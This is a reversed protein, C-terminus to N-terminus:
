RLSLALRLCPYTLIALTLVIWGLFPGIPISLFFCLTFALTSQMMVNGFAGPSQSGPFVDAFIGKNTSEYVGRGLGQLVYLVVLGWGWTSLNVIHLKDAQVIFAITIFFLSGMLVVTAKNPVLTFAKSGLAAVLATIAALFGVFSAGFNAKAYNSNVYGNMFAACFGFTLNTFSMLWIKPDPWLRLAAMLKDLFGVASPIKTSSVPKVLLFVIASVLAVGSYLYFVTPISLEVYTVFVTALVKAVVECSLYWIAFTGALETTLEATPRGEAEAAAEATAAFFAGQAIWILGAGFGGLVSGVMVFGWQAASAKECSSDKVNYQACSQSAIAFFLVYITYLMMGSFMGPKSGLQNCLFPALLLASFMTLLNLLANSTYGVSAHLVSSAYVIPTTVTAHNVAFAICMLLFNSKYM